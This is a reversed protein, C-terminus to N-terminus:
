EPTKKSCSRILRVQAISFVKEDGQGSKTTGLFTTGSSLHHYPDDEDKHKTRVCDPSPVKEPMNGLVNIEMTVPADSPDVAAKRGVKNSPKKKGIRAATKPKLECARLIAASEQVSPVGGRTARRTQSM